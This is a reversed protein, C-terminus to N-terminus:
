EYSFTYEALDAFLRAMEGENTWSIEIKSECVSFEMKANAGFAKSTNRFRLIELQRKVIDKPLAAEM